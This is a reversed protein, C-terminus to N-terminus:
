KVGMDHQALCEMARTSVKVILVDNVKTMQMELPDGDNGSWPIAGGWKQRTYDESLKFGRGDDSYAVQEHSQHWATVSLDVILKGGISALRAMFDNDEFAMGLLYAEDFGGCDLCMQRSCYVAWCMPFTRHEGCFEEATDLDVTRPVWVARDWKRARDLANPPLWVDSSLWLLNEGRAEEIAENNVYAPNNHGDIHYTQPREVVTDRRIWRIPMQEFADMLPTYDIDSGDDVVLIETDTLDNRALAMLTNSLMLEPRNYVTLIVTDKVKSGLINRGKNNMGM